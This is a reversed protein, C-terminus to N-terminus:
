DKCAISSNIGLIVLLHGSENNRCGLSIFVAAIVIMVNQDFVIVILIAIVASSIGIIAASFKFYNTPQGILKINYEAGSKTRKRVLFIFLANVFLLNVLHKIMEKVIFIVCPANQM